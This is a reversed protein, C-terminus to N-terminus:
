KPAIVDVRVFRHKRYKEDNALARIQEKTSNAPPAWEPGQAGLVKIEIKDSPIKLQEVIADRANEARAKSLYYNAPDNQGSPDPDNKHDRWDKGSVKDETAPVRSASATIVLKKMKGGKSIYNKMVKVFEKFKDSDQNLIYQNNGFLDGLDVPKPVETPVFPEDDGSGEPPPFKLHLKTLAYGLDATEIEWRYKKGNIPNQTILRNKQYFEYLSFNSEENLKVDLKKKSGSTKIPVCKVNFSSAGKAPQLYLKVVGNQIQERVEPFGDMLSKYQPNTEIQSLYNGTPVETAFIQQNYRIGLGGIEFPITANGIKINLTLPDTNKAEVNVMIDSLYNKEANAVILDNLDNELNKVIEQEAVSQEDVRNVNEIIFRLQSETVLIKRGM